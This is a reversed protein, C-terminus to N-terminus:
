ALPTSVALTAAHRILVPCPAARLVSEAVSGAIMRSLGTRGATVMAILGANIDRAYKVLEDGAFGEREAAIAFVGKRVLRDCIAELYPQFSEAGPSEPSFFLDTTPLLPLSVRLLHLTAKLTLALNAAEDLIAEALPSGDLAVVIRKWDGIKTGPRNLIVPISARRLTAEAVSGMLARRVGSRGHTTMAVLRHREPQAQHLIEDVPRGFELRTVSAVGDESLKKQIRSLYAQAPEVAEARDIARFLTLEAPRHAVLPLLAPFIVEAEPSGDLPVLIRNTENEM